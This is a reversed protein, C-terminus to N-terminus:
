FGNDKTYGWKALMADAEKAIAAERSISKGAKRGGVHPLPVRDIDESRKPNAKAFLKALALDPVDGDDPNEERYEAIEDKYMKVLNQRSRVDPNQASLKEEFARDRKELLDVISSIIDGKLHGLTEPIKDPNDLLEVGKIESLWDKVQQKEAPTSAQTQLVGVAGKLQDMESKLSKNETSLKTAWSQVDKYRKEWNPQSDEQDGKQSEDSRTDEDQLDGDLTDETM